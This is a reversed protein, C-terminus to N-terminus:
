RLVKCDVQSFFELRLSAASERSTKHMYEVETFMNIGTHRIVYAEDSGDETELKVIADYDIVCPACNWGFPTWHPNM